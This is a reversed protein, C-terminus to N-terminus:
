DDASIGDRRFDIIADRARTVHERVQDTVKSQKNSM